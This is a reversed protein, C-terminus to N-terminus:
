RGCSSSSSRRSRCGSSPFDLGTNTFTTRKRRSSSASSNRSNQKPNRQNRGTNEGDSDNEVRKRSRFRNHKRCYTDETCAPGCSSFSNFRPTTDKLVADVAQQTEQVTVAGIRQASLDSMSLISFLLASIFVSYGSIKM